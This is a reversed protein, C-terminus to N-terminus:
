PTAERFGSADVEGGMMRYIVMWQAVSWLAEALQQLAPTAVDVVAIRFDELAGMMCIIQFNTM